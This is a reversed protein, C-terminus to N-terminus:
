AIMLSVVVCIVITWIAYPIAIYPNLMWAITIGIVSAMVAALLVIM